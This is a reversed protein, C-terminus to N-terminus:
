CTTLMAVNGIVRGNICAFRNRWKRLAVKLDYSSANYRFTTDNYNIPRGYFGKMEIEILEAACKHFEEHLRRVNEYAPTSKIESPFVSSYMWRGLSCECDSAIEDVTMNFERTARMADIKEKWMEHYQIAGTIKNYIDTIEGDM